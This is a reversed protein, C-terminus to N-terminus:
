MPLLRPVYQCTYYYTYSPFVKFRSVVSETDGIFISDKKGRKARCGRHSEGKASPQLVYEPAFSRISCCLSRLKSLLSIASSVCNLTKEYKEREKSPCLSRGTMKQICFSSDGFLSEECVSSLSPIVCIHASFRTQFLYIKIFDDSM